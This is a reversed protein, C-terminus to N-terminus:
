RECWAAVLVRYRSENNFTSGDFTVRGHHHPVHWYYAGIDDWRQPGLASGNWAYASVDSFYGGRKGPCNHGDNGTAYTVSGHPWLYVLYTPASRAETLAVPRAQPVSADAVTAILGAGIAFLLFFVFGLVMVACFPDDHKFDRIRNM